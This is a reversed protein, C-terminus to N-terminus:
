GLSTRFNWNFNVWTLPVPEHVCIDDHQYEAEGEIYTLWPRKQLPKINKIMVSHYQLPYQQELM